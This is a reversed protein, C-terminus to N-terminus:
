RSTNFSLVERWLLDLGQVESGEGREWFHVQPAPSYCDRCLHPMAMASTNTSCSSEARLLSREEGTRQLGLGDRSNM